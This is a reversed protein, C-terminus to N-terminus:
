EVDIVRTLNGNADMRFKPGSYSGCECNDLRHRLREVEQELAEAIGNKINPNENIHGPVNYGLAERLQYIYVVLKPINDVLETAYDIDHEEQEWYKSHKRLIETLQEEIPKM